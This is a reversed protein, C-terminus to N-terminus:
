DKNAEKDGSFYPDSLAIECAMEILNSLPIKHKKSVARMQNLLNFDLTMSIKEKYASRKKFFSDWDFGEKNQKESVM